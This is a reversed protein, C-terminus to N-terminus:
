LEASFDIYVLTSVNAAALAFAGGNTFSGTAGISINNNSNSGNYPYGSINLASLSYDFNGSVPTTYGFTPQTRMPVPFYLNASGGTTSYCRGIAFQVFPNSNNTYKVYYRQCQSLQDSYTNFQYPTAVSGVELQVGTVYFTAGSTGVVSVAGSTSLYSASQWSGATGSQSSGAGLAFNIILAGGSTTSPLANSTNGAITVSIQTWTNASSITYSFPYTVSAGYYKIAGGFTGTLSSYVWFSLTITKANATGWALDAVNFGEIYQQIGFIDTSTVSYSSSSTFGLYNTFGAPPTVSGANQQWTGKSSQTANYYWRDVTYANVATGSAGNNRQDVVMNGNIIRNRPGLSAATAMNTNDNFTIGTTGNVAFSM